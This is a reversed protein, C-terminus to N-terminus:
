ENIIDKDLLDGEAMDLLDDILKDVEQWTQFFHLDTPRHGHVEKHLDSYIKLSNQLLQKDDDSM